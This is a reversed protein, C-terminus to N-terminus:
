WIELAPYGSGALVAQLFARAARLAVEDEV